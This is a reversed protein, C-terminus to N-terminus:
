LRTLYLLLVYFFRGREPVTEYLYPTLVLYQKIEVIDMHINQPMWLFMPEM